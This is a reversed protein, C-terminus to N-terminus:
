LLGNWNVRNAGPPPISVVNILDAIVWYIKGMVGGLTFKYTKIPKIIPYNKKEYNLKEHRKLTTDIGDGFDVNKLVAIVWYIKGM